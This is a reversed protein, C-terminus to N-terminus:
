LERYTQDVLVVLVFLVVLGVLFLLRRVLDGNSSHYERSWDERTEGFQETAKHLIHRM